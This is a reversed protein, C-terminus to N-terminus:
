GPLPVCAEGSPGCAGSPRPRTLRVGSTAQSPPLPVHRHAPPGSQECDRLYFDSRARHPAPVPRGPRHAASPARSGPPRPCLCSRTHPVPTKLLLWPESLVRTRQAKRKGPSPASSRPAGLHCSVQGAAGPEGAMQQPRGGVARTDLRHPTAHPGTAEKWAEM